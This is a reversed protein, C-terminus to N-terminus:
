ECKTCTYTRGIVAGFANRIAISNSCDWGSTQFRSLVLEQAETLAGQGFEVEVREAQDKCGCGALTLAALGIVLNRM